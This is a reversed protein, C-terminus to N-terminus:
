VAAIRKTPSDITGAVDGRENIALPSFGEPLMTVSATDAAEARAAPILPCVAAIILMVLM